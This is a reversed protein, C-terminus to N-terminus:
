EIDDSIPIEDSRSNQLSTHILLLNLHPKKLQTVLHKRQILKATEIKLAIRM